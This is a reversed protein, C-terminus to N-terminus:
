WILRTLYMVLTGRWVRELVNKAKMEKITKQGKREQENTYNKMQAIIAKM